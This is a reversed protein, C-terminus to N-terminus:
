SPQENFFFVLLEWITKLITKPQAGTAVGSERETYNVDVGVIRLGRRKARIINEALLFVGESKGMECVSIRM